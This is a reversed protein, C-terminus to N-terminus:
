QGAGLRLVPHIKRGSRPDIWAVGPEIPPATGETLCRVWAMSSGKFQARLVEPFRRVLARNAANDVFLWCSAVRYGRFGALEAAEALKRTTSRSAHGLDGTLNWIEVLILARHPDDRIGVDVSGGDRASPRTPLEFM